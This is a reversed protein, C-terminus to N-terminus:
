IFTLLDGLDAQFRIKLFDIEKYDNIELKCFHCKIGLIRYGIEIEDKENQDYEYIPEAYLLSLNKCCPCSVLFCEGEAALKYTLAEKDKMYGPTNKIKNYIAINAEFKLEIQKEITEQM